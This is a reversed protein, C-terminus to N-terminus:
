AAFKYNNSFIINETELFKRYEAMKKEHLVSNCFYHYEQKKLMQRVKPEYIQTIVKRCLAMRVVGKKKFYRREKM